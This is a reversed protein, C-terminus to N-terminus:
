AASNSPPPFHARLARGAAPPAGTGTRDPGSAWGRLEPGRLRDHPLPRMTGVLLQSGDQAGRAPLLVVMVSRPIGDRNADSTAGGSSSKRRTRLATAAVGAAFVGVRRRMTTAAATTGTKLAAM